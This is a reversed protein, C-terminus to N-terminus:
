LFKLDSITLVSQLFILKQFVLFFLRQILVIPCRLLWKYKNITAKEGKAINTFYKGPMHPAKFLTPLPVIFMLQCFVAPGTLRQASQSQCLYALSGPVIALIPNLGESRAGFIKQHIGVNTLLILSKKYFVSLYYGLTKGLKLVLFDNCFM